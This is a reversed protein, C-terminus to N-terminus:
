SELNMYAIWMNLKDREATMSIAKVAREAVNRAAKIDVKDLMFAM